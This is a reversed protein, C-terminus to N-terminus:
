LKSEILYKFAAEENKEIAIEVSQKALELMTRADRRAKYANVIKDAIVQVMASGIFPIAFKKIDGPYLEVQASGTGWMRTQWRGIMSNMVVAVYISNEEKLRLLNVHNSALAREDNLFVTTRGVNAGTTYTLIDGHYIRASKFDNHDWFEAKTHNFNDYDLGNELIHQSTVVHLTEDDFYKPQVGRECFEAFEEVYRIRNAKEGIQRILAKYKPQYYEADLRKINNIEKARVEYALPDPPLWTDLCLEHLLIQQAKQYGLKDAITCDFSRSVLKEVAKKFKDSFVPIKIQRLKDPSFNVQNSRISHREIELRGAKSNMFVCLVEPSILEANPRARFLYSAFAMDKDEMAVAARGVLAPNGNTRCVLVDGKRIKLNDFTEYDLLACHKAPEGTFMADFENLRLVPYGIAEENLEDSTGYQVFPIIELGTKYNGVILSEKVYFEAELRWEKHAHVAQLPIERIGLGEM